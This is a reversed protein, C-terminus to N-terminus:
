SVDADEPRSSRPTLRGGDRAIRTLRTAECSTPVAGMAGVTVAAARTSLLLRPQKYNERARENM